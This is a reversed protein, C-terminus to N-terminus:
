VTGKMLQDWTWERGRIMHRCKVATDAYIDYGAEIADKCFFVDDVGKGKSLDYRFKIKELVSRHILLCGSGCATIQLLHNGLAVDDRVAVMREKNGSFAVWMTPSMKIEDGRKLPNFYLGTIINKNHGVLVEIANRPLVIDQDVNFFYDYGGELAKERLINRNHILRDYISPFYKGKVVPIKDKISNFFRDDKSNDIFLLDMNSYTLKKINEIFEETCYEHYDSLLGGVLVKPLKNM